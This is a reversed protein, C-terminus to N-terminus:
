QCIPNLETNLPNIIRLGLKNHQYEFGTFNSELYGVPQFQAVAKIFQAVTTYFTSFKLL